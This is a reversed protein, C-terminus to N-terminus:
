EACSRGSDDSRDAASRRPPPVTADIFAAQTVGPADAGPQGICTRFLDCAGAYVAASLMLTLRLMSSRFDGESWPTIARARGIRRSQIGAIAENEASPRPAPTARSLGSMCCSRASIVCLILPAVARWVESDEPGPSRRASVQLIRQRGDHVARSGSARSPSFGTWRRM